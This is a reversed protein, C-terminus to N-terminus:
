GTPVLTSVDDHLAALGSDFTALRGSHTRALQALYADTVQRHGMVGDFRVSAYAVDDAWFQHRPNQALHHLLAVAPGTSGQERVVLRVLSGETVPCTAFPEATSTFWRRASAHHVHSRILLAILLNADLLNTM